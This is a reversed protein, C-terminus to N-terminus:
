FLLTLTSAVLLLMWNAVKGVGANYNLYASCGKFQVKVECDTASTMKTITLAQCDYLYDDSVFRLDARKNCTIACLTKVYEGTCRGNCTKQDTCDSGRCNLYSKYNPLYPDFCKGVEDTTATDSSKRCVGNGSCDDNSWCDVVPSSQCVGNSCLNTQCVASNLCPAGIPLALLPVCRRRDCTQGVKCSIGTGCLQGTSLRNRCVSNICQQSEVCYKKDTSSCREGLKVYTVATTNGKVCKGTLIDRTTLAGACSRFKTDTDPIICEDAALSSCVSSKRLSDSCSQTSGLSETKYTAATYDVCSNSNCRKSNFTRAFNCQSDKSCIPSIVQTQTYIMNILLLTFFIYTKM